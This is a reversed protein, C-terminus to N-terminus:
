HENQIGIIEIKAKFHSDKSNTSEKYCICEFVQSDELGLAEFIADEAVKIRNTLDAKKINGGNTFWKHSFILTLRLPKEKFISADVRKSYIALKIYQKFAKGKKSLHRRNGSNSYLTNLTPPFTNFKLEIKEM